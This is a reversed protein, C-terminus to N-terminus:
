QIWETKRDLKTASTVDPRLQEAVREVALRQEDPLLHAYNAMTTRVDSHRLQRQAVVPSAGSAVLMTAHTHRFAHMGCRPIGLSDLIPWLHKQVVKNLSYPNGNRNSFLLRKPNSKWGRMYERLMEALAAPIAVPAASAKSKPTQLRSGYAARRVYILRHELDVDEVSLGLVEGPRLGTMAAIAFITRYPNEATAIIKRAQEPTFFQPTKRFHEAPIKLSRVEFDGVQYGWERASSLISRLTYLVNLVYHRSRGQNSMAAVLDQVVGLGIEDLRLWRLFPVLYRRLHARAAKQTSPKMMALARSEYVGVFEAFTARRVPRYDPRNVQAVIEDARRRALKGTPYEQKTGVFVRVMKRKVSGDPQLVDERYRVTWSNGRLELSGQQYRRRALSEGGQGSVHQGQASVTACNLTYSAGWDFCEESGLGGLFEDEGVCGVACRTKGADLLRNSRHVSVGPSAGQAPLTGGAIQQPNGMM